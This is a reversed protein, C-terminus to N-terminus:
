RPQWAEFTVHGAGLSLQVVELQTGLEPQLLAATEQAAADVDEVSQEM